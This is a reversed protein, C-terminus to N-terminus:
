VEVRFEAGEATNRVSLKGGMNTEIITKSMFLGVGTGQQPGKTTFYPAFIKDIIDDPVGGANDAITVSSIGNEFNTSIAIRPSKVNREIFVDKANILINLLVQAYENPYGYITVGEQSKRDITIHHEKYSAEVLSLAKCVANDADFESKERDTSFFNRFDDITKSMYQIIEMSKAVSTDLFEKNFSPTGYFFGVRQTFLGLTNLPQRWQHAINGIMEGMAAQRSQQILLLEQKRLEEVVRLRELTEKNLTEETTRRLEERALYELAFSVDEGMQQLLEVHQQDFFYREGAYLTLAGIVKGSEKLAISASAHIGYAKGQEHWPRTCPDNQFDNCIYFTGERISIGTPGLGDLEDNKSIRINELYGTAGCSAAIRIQGTIEDVLGVWSLLFGGDEVSIRCFDRFLSERDVARVLTQNTESLVTYLKNLRLLSKEAMERDAIEGLLTEVTDALQGTRESVRLELGDHAKKLKEEAIVRESIDIVKSLVSSMQGEQDTLVSNYWACHIVKGNKTYNRNTVTIQRSTGDLLQAVTKEVIPIDAEFIMNLDFIPKGLTEAESWGFM